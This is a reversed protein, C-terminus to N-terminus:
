EEDSEREELRALAEKAAKRVEANSDKLMRIMAPLAETVKLSALGWLAAIRIEPDEDSLFEILEANVNKQTEESTLERSWHDMEEQATRILRLTNEMLDLNSQRNASGLSQAIEQAAEVSMYQGLARIAQAQRDSDSKQSNQALSRIVSGLVPILEPLQLRGALSMAPGNLQAPYAQIAQALIATKAEDWDKGELYTLARKAIYPSAIQYGPYTWPQLMFEAFVSPDSAHEMQSFLALVTRPNAEALPRLSNLFAEQRRSNEFYISSLRSMETLRVRGELEPLYALILAETNKAGHKALLQLAILRASDAAEADRALNEFAQTPLSQLAGLTKLSQREIQDAVDLGNSLKLLQAIEDPLLQDIGQITNAGRNSVNELLAMDEEQMLLRLTEAAGQPTQCVKFLLDVLGRYIQDANPDRNGSRYTIGPGIPYNLNLYRLRLMPLLADLDRKWDAEPLYLDLEDLVQTDERKALGVLVEKRVEPALGSSRVLSKAIEADAFQIADRYLAPDKISWNGDALALVAMHRVSEDSDQLLHILALRSKPTVEPQILIKGRQPGSRSIWNSRVGNRSTLFQAVRVRVSPAPDTAKELLADSQAFRLLALAAASRVLASEHQLAAELIPKCTFAPFDPNVASVIALAFTENATKLESILQNQLEPILYDRRSLEKVLSLVPVRTDPARMLELLLDLWYPQLYRPPTQAPNPDGWNTDQSRFPQILEMVALIRLKWVVNGFHFRDIALRCAAAPDAKALLYLPDRQGYLKADELNSAVILALAPVAHRGLQTVTNVDFGFVAELIRAYLPESPLGFTEQLYEQLEPDLSFTHLLSQDKSIALMLEERAQALEPMEYLEALFAHDKKNLPQLEPQGEQYDPLNKKLALITVADLAADLKGVQLYYASRALAVKSISEFRVTQPGQHRSALNARLWLEDFKKEAEAFARNVILLNQITALEEERLEPTLIVPGRPQVLDTGRHIMGSWKYLPLQPIASDQQAFSPTVMLYTLALIFFHLLLPKRMALSDSPNAAMNDDRLPIPTL